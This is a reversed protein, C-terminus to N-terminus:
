QVSIVMKQQLINIFMILGIDMTGHTCEELFGTKAHNITFLRTIDYMRITKM